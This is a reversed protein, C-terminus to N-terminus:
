RAEGLPRSGARRAPPPQATSAPQPQPQPQPQGAVEGEQEPQQAETQAKMALFHAREGDRQELEKHRELEAQDRLYLLDAKDFAAHRPPNRSHHHRHHTATTAAPSPTAQTNRAPVRLPPPPLAPRMPEGGRGTLWGQRQQMEEIDQVMRQYEIDGETGEATM